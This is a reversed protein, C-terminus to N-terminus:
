ATEVRNRGAVKAKYMAADARAMIADVTDGGGQSTTVGISVTCSPMIKSQDLDMRIREAVLKAQQLSTEPLLLSFEEGGFRGLHDNQRLYANVNAVFAILVKDGAQHGYSDNVAKFHDLDLALVAMSRGSRKCRQLESECLTNWHRRTLANTLSDRSALQELERRLMDSAMLVFGISLLLISFAFGVAYFQHIPSPALLNDAISQTMALIVRIVQMLAAAGLSGATLWRSFNMPKQRYVLRAHWGMFVAGLVNVILLRYYPSVVVFTFWVHALATLGIIVVWPMHRPPIGFFRQSGVYAWYLGLFFLFNALTLSLIDPIRDRGAILVGSFFLILLAGSWESLGKISPPYNRRLSYLVLAMLGGMVGCLMFVTRTDFLTM